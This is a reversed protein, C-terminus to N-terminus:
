SVGTLLGNTYTLSRSNVLTSGSQTLTYETVGTLESGSWALNVVRAGADDVLAQVQGAVTTDYVQFMLGFAQNSWTVGDPATAAGTGANSEQWAYYASSSGTGTVVLCYPASPALGEALLPVSVWFPQTYIYPETLTVSALAPGTPLQSSAAYLTVTLPSITTNLPSGGVTSIQLAVRGIATQSSGTTFLQCLWGSELSQYLATGNGSQAQLAGAYVWQSPHAALFQTVAGANAPYGAAAALWPATAM